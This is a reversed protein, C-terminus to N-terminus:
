LPSSKLITSDQALHALLRLTQGKPLVLRGSRALRTGRSLASQQRLPALGLSITMKKISITRRALDSAETHIRDLDGFGYM